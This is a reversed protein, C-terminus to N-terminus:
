GQPRLTLYRPHGSILGCAPEATYGASSILQALEQDTFAYLYGMTSVVWDGEAVSAGRPNLQRGLRQGLTSAFGRKSRDGAARTWVSLLVPGSPCFQRLTRLVDLRLAPETIHTFSGWGLLVADFAGYAEIASRLPGAQTLDGYGGSLFTANAYDQALLQATSVFESVPDFAVVSDGRELFFRAERGCGAGGILLKLPGGPLAGGFWHREWDFIGADPEYRRAQRSYLRETLAQRERPPIGALAVGELFRASRQLQTSVWQQLRFAATLAAILTAQEM